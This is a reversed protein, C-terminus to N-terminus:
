VEESVPGLPTDLTVPATKAIPTPTPKVAPAEVAADPAPILVFQSVLWPEGKVVDDLDDAFDGAELRRGDALDMGATVEYRAM